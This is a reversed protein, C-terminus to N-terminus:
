SNSVEKKESLPFLHINIHYVRDPKKVARALEMIENRLNGIKKRIIEFASKDISMTVTSLEREEKSFRDYAARALEMAELQFKQVVFPRIVSGSTIVADVRKYVGTDSKTILGLRTLVELAAKAESPKIPPDLLKALREYYDDTIDYIAVLERIAAYYWKDYFEHQDQNVTRVPGKQLSLIENYFHTKESHSKAQNFYVLSRFYDKEKKNLKLIHALEIIIRESITR